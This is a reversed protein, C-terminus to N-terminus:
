GDQRQTYCCVGPVGRVKNAGRVWRPGRLGRSHAALRGCGCGIIGVGCAGSGLAPAGFESERDKLLVADGAM